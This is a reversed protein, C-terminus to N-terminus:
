VEEFDISSYEAAIEQKRANAAELAEPSKYEASDLDLVEVVLNPNGAYVAEVMGGKVVIYVESFNM